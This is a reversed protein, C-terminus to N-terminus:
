VTIALKTGDLITAKAGIWCNKGIVVGKGNVGQLRIPVVHDSYNHNEPHISVYNGFICDDGIELHGVGCGYFGHTGLGVNNGIKVYNAIQKLSGTLKITTYMGMSVNKGCILGGHSLADIYCRYGINLGKGFKFKSVCKITATPSVFVPKLTKLRVGGWLMSLIKGAVLSFMYGVPVANDIQYQEGKIMKIIRNIIM